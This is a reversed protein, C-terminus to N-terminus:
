FRRKRCSFKNTNNNGEFSNNFDIFEKINYYKEVKEISEESKVYIFSTGSCYGKGDVSINYSNSSIKSPIIRKIKTFTNKRFVNEMKKALPTMKNSRKLGELTKLLLVESLNTRRTIQTAVYVANKPIVANKSLDRLSIGYIKQLELNLKRLLVQTNVSTKLDSTTFDIEPLSSFYSKLIEYNSSGRIIMSYMTKSNPRNLPPRHENVSMIVEVKRMLFNLGFVLRRSSTEFNLDFNGGNDRYDRQSGDGKFYSLIFNQECDIPANYLFSPIEKLYSYAHELGLGETFITKALKTKTKLVYCEKYIGNECKPCVNYRGNEITKSGCNKCKKVRKTNIRFDLGFIEKAIRQIKHIYQRDVSVSIVTNPRYKSPMTGESEYQGMIEGLYPAKEVYRYATKAYQEIYQTNNNIILKGCNILDLPEDNSNVDLFRPMLIPMGVELDCGNIEILNCDDDITFLYQNPTIIVSGHKCVIELSEQPNNKEIHNINLKKPQLNNSIGFIQIKEMNESFVPNKLDKIFIRKYQNNNIDHLLINEHSQIKPDLPIDERFYKRKYIEIWEEYTLDEGFYEKYKGKLFFRKIHRRITTEGLSYGQRNDLYKMIAPISGGVDRKQYIKIWDLVDEDTPPKKTKHIGYEVLFEEYNLNNHKCYTKVIPVMGNYFPTIGIKLNFLNNCKIIFDIVNQWSGGYYKLKYTEIWFEIDGDYYSPSYTHKKKKKYFDDKIDLIFNKDNVLQKILDVLVKPKFNLIEIKKIEKMLIEM